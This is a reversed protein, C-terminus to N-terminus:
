FIRRAIKYILYWLKSVAMDFSGPYEITRGGWGLKFRTVGPWKHPEIGWLDYQRLGDARLQKIIHWHLAYPAMLSRKEHDSAGHLYCGTDGHLLILAAAVLKGNHEAFYLRTRLGDFNLLKKYYDASHPAFKDRKATKKLLKLFSDIDSDKDVTVGHKDAVGINYRTKHHMKGLLENDEQNIDLIVTRSPQMEKKSKKFKRGASPDALAQAVSDTVPEIKVFISKRKKAEECLWRVFNSVPNKFGGTMQNFDMEPGHPIYLYNKKFPLDHKIIKASIGDKEYELVERGLSKQFEAWESSQLFSNEM